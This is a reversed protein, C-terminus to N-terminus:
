PCAIDLIFERMKQQLEKESKFYGHGVEGFKKVFVSRLEERFGDNSVSEMMNRIQRKFQNLGEPLVIFGKLDDSPDRVRIPKSGAVRMVRVYYEQLEKKNYSRITPSVIGFSREKMGEELSVADFTTIHKQNDDVCFIYYEPNDKFSKLIIRYAEKKSQHGLFLMWRVPLNWELCFIHVRMALMSSRVTVIDQSFRDVPFHPAIGANHAIPLLWAGMGPSQSLLREEYEFYAKLDFGIHAFIDDSRSDVLVGDFDWIIHVKKGNQLLEEIKQRTSLVLNFVEQMEAETSKHM